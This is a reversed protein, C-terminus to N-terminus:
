NIWGCLGFADNFRQPMVNSSDQASKPADDANAAAHIRRHDKRQAHAGKAGVPYHRDHHRVLIGVWPALSEGPLQRLQEVDLRHKLIYRRRKLAKAAVAPAVFCNAPNEV